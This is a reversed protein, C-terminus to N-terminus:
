RTIDGLFNLYIIGLLTYNENKNESERLQIDYM